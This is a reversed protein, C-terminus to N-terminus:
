NISRQLSRVAGEGRVRAKGCEQRARRRRGGGRGGQRRRRRTSREVRPAELRRTAGGEEHVVGPGAPGSGSSLGAHQGVPHHPKQSSPLLSTPGGSLPPGEHTHAYAQIQGSTLPTAGTGSAASLPLIQPKGLSSTPILGRTRAILDGLFHPAVLVPLPSPVLPNPAPPAPGQAQHPASHRAPFSPLLTGSWPPPTPNQAQLCFVHRGDLRQQGRAMALRKAVEGVRDILMQPSNVLGGMPCCVGGPCPSGMRGWWFWLGPEWSGLVCNPHLTLDGVLPVAYLLNAHRSSFGQGLTPLSLVSTLCVSTSPPPRPSCVNLDGPRCPVPFATLWGRQTCHSM